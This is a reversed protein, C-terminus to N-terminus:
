GILVNKGEFAFGYSRIQEKPIGHAELQAAYQKEEIQALAAAVTDKLTEEDEKDYVKFELIIANRGEPNKPELMVDYRGFGSERNSTIIYERQLEVILGLVFGHYFKEPEKNGTNFYSFIRTTIRNMYVNMAKKDGMLM